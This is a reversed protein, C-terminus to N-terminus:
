RQATNMNWKPNQQLAGQGALIEKNYIINYLGYRNEIRQKLAEKTNGSYESALFTDVLKVVGKSGNGIPNDTTWERPDGNQPDSDLGGANREAWRVLDFWRKGEGIFELQRENMVAIVPDTETKANGLTGSSVDDYNPQEAAENCYWRRHIANVYKMAETKDGLLALAEAKQLMVDSLRYIIWNRYPSSMPVVKIEKVEHNGTPPVIGLTFWKFCCSNSLDQGSTTPVKTWSSFWMRSDRLRETESAYLGMMTNNSTALRVDTGTGWITNVIDNKRADLNNFQLEFISEESNGTEFIKTHAYLRPTSGSNFGEFDNKILNVNTLGFSVTETRSIGFGKNDEEFQYALKEMSLDAYEKCKTYDNKVNHGNGDDFNIDDYRGQWLSGRWLYMDSLLAYIAANTMLGKTQRKDTYRNAAQGKIKEVDNILSDLIVLQNTAGFLEVQTDNNIVKTTYPVDKFARILYFYNLARLATMEARMEDWERPTFQKDRELVQPGYYLVKNCYNIVTYFGGWDFLTSASDKELQAERITKYFNQQATKQDESNPTYSDSRLDGWLIMKELNSCMQTYAAYRVGELDNKDEWFNEEVIQTQPYVTLWDECSTTAIAAIGLLCISKFIKNIKKM